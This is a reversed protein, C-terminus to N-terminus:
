KFKEQTKMGVIEPGGHVRAGEGEIMKGLVFFDGVGIADDHAGGMAFLHEAVVDAFPVLFFIAVVVVDGIGGADQFVPGLADVIVAGVFINVGDAHAANVIAAHGAAAGGPFFGRAEVVDDGVLAVQEGLAYIWIDGAHGLNKAGVLFDEFEVPECWVNGIVDGEDPGIVVVAVDALKGTGGFAGTGAAAAHVIM